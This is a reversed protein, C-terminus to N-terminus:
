TLEFRQIVVTMNKYTRKVVALLVSTTGLEQVYM